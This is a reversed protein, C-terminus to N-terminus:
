KKIYETGNLFISNDKKELAYARRGVDWESNSSEVWTIEMIDNTIKYTGILTIVNEDRILSTYNFSVHNGESFTYSALSFGEIESQYTGSLKGGSSCATLAVLLLFLAAIAAVSKTLKRPNKTKFPEVATNSPEFTTSM